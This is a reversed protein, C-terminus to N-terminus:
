VSYITPLTLHTYSVPTFETFAIESIGTLGLLIELKKVSNRLNLLRSLAQLTKDGVYKCEVFGLTVQGLPLTAFADVLAASSDDKIVDICFVEFGITTLRNLRKVATALAVLFNDTVSKGQVKICLDLLPANSLVSSLSILSDWTSRDRICM